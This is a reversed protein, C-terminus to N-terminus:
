PCKKNEPNMVIDTFWDGFEETFCYSLLTITVSKEEFTRKFLRSYIIPHGLYCPFERLSQYVHMMEQRTELLNPIVLVTPLKQATSFEKFGKGKMFLQGM